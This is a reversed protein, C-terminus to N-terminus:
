LASHCKDHSPTFYTSTKSTIILRTICTSHQLQFTLAPTNCVAPPEAVCLVCRLVDTYSRALVEPLHMRRNGLCRGTQGRGPATCTRSSWATYCIVTIHPHSYHKIGVHVYWNTKQTLWNVTQKERVRQENWEQGDTQTLHLWKTKETISKPGTSFRCRLLNIM